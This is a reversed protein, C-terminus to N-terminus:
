LSEPAEMGPNSAQMEENVATAQQQVPKTPAKKGNRKAVFVVAAAGIGVCALAGAVAGAIAGAFSHALSYSLM